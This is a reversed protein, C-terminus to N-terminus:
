RRKPDQCDPDVLLWGDNELCRIPVLNGPMRFILAMAGAFAVSIAVWPTVPLALGYFFCVFGVVADIGPGAGIIVRRQWRALAFYHDDDTVVGLPGLFWFRRQAGQEARKPFLRITAPVGFYRAAGFHGLEHIVVGVIGLLLSLLLAATREETSLFYALQLYISYALDVLGSTHSM